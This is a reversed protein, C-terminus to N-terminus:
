KCHKNIKNLFSNFSKLVKEITSIVQPANTTALDIVFSLETEINSFNPESQVGISNSTTGNYLFRLLLTNPDLPTENINDVNEQNPEQEMQVNAM